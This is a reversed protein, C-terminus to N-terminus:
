TLSNNNSHSTYWSIKDLILPMMVVFPSLEKEFANNNMYDLISDYVFIIEKQLDFKALAWHDVSFVMYVVLHLFFFKSVDKWHVACKLKEGKAYDVVYNTANNTWVKELNIVYVSYLHELQYITDMIACRQTGCSPANVLSHRLAYFFSDLHVSSIWSRPKCLRCFFDKDADHVPWKITLSEMNDDRMRDDFNIPSKSETVADKRSKKYPDIYPTGVYVSKKRKKRLYHEQEKCRKKYHSKSSIEDTINIVGHVPPEVDIKDADVHAVGATQHDHAPPQDDIKDHDVHSAVSIHPDHAHLQVDIKDIVVDSAVLTHPDHAPPQFVFPFGYLNYKEETNTYLSGIRKSRRTVTNKLSLMTAEFSLCGWPYNNFEKFDDLLRIHLDDIKNKPEKGLLVSGLFYLMAFKVMLTDDNSQATSFAKKYQQETLRQKILSLEKLSSMNSVKVLVAKQDDNDLNDDSPM